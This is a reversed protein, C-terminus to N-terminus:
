FFKWTVFSLRHSQSTLVISSQLFHLLIKKRPLGMGATIWQKRPYYKWTKSCIEKRKSFIRKLNLFSSPHNQMQKLPFMLWNKVTLFWSLKLYTSLRRYYNCYRHIMITFTEPKKELRLFLINNEEDKVIKSSKLNQLEQLITWKSFDDSANLGIVCLTM